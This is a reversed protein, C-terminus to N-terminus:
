RSPCLTWIPVLISNLYRVFTSIKPKFKPFCSLFSRPIFSCISEWILCYHALSKSMSTPDNCIRMRIKTTSLYKVRLKDNNRLCIFYLCSRIGDNIFYYLPKKVCRTQMFKSYYTDYQILELTNANKKLWIFRHKPHSLRLVCKM